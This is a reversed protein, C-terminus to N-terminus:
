NLEIHASCLLRIEGGSTDFHLESQKTCIVCRGGDRQWVLAKIRAVLMRENWAIRESVLLSVDAPSLFFRVVKRMDGENKGFTADVLNFIGKDFFVGADIKEYVQVQVPEALLGDKYAQAAKYFKGNETPKGSAYMLLQDDERGEAGEAVSDHGEVIYLEHEADWVDAYGDARSLVVIVPPRIEGRGGRFNLSKELMMGERLSLEAASILLSRSSYDSLFSM